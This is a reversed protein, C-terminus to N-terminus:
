IKEIYARLRVAIIVADEGGPPVYGGSIKLEGKAEIWQGIGKFAQIEAIFPDPETQKCKLKIIQTAGAAVTGKNNELTFYDSNEDKQM